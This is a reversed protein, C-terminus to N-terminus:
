ILYLRIMIMRMETCNLKVLPQSVVKININIIHQLTPGLFFCFFFKNSEGMNKTLWLSQRQQGVIFNKDHWAVRRLILNRNRSVRTFVKNQKTWSNNSLIQVWNVIRRRGDVRNMYNYIERPIAKDSIHFLVM